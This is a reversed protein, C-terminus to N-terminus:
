EPLVAEIAADSVSGDAIVVQMGPALLTHSPIYNDKEWRGMQSWNADALVPFTLGHTNTWSDLDSTSPTNGANNQAKLQM